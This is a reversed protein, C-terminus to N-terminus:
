RGTEVVAVKDRPRLAEGRSQQGPLMWEEDGAQERVAARRWGVGPRERVCKPSTPLRDCTIGGADPACGIWVVAM